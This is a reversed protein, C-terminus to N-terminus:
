MGASESSLKFLTNILEELYDEVVHFKGDVNVGMWIVGRYDENITIIMESQSGDKQLSEMYLQKHITRKTLPMDPGIKGVNVPNKAKLLKM